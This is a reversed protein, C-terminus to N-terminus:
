RAMGSEGAALPSVTVAGSVVSTSITVGWRRRRGTGGAMRTVPVARRRAARRTGPVCQHASGARFGVPGADEPAPGTRSRPTRTLRVPQHHRRRPRHRTQPRRRLQSPPPAHTVTRTTVLWRRGDRHTVVAAGAFTTSESHTEPDAPHVTLADIPTAPDDLHQRVAIEAVQEVPTYYSRGRFGTLPVEGRHASEVIATASDPNLRGYTLGTPLLVVAPAFRHGGTHSCEWVQGPYFHALHAAIPRGLLACCQDRKGHACVLVLPDTVPSGIGPAPGDLLTLDLDLLQKPDTIEFRECWSAGPRTNAILVTRVGTFEHRGPRRILTPRAHSATTRAALEATIEPGLVEDAIVDRGWAGPQEICLWSTVHTASGILPIERAAASCLLGDFDHGGAARGGGGVSDSRSATM